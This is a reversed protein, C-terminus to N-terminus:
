FRPLPAGPLRQRFFRFWCGLLVGSYVVLMAIGFLMARFLPPASEPRTEFVAPYLVAYGLTAGPSLASVWLATEQWDSRAVSLVSAILVPTLWVFLLSMMLKGREFVILTWGFVLLAGGIAIPLGDLGDLRAWVGMGSAQLLKEVGVLLLASVLALGAVFGMCSSEDWHWPVGPLQLNSRRLEGRRLTDWDPVVILMLWASLGGALFVFVLPIATALAEDPVPMRLMARAQESIGTTLMPWLNGFVLLQFVAFAVIAQVKSLPHRGAQVWKRHLMCVFLVMMSGQIILSFITGSLTYHFFPVKRAQLIQMEDMAMGSQAGLLPRIHEALVPRVTLYEFFVFGFHSFQPLLLYLLVVFLQAMRASWRWRETVMGAAMGTFHYLLTASFFVGYVTFLSILSVNGRWVVFCLFPLTVAFMVYERIPLGFLYGVIKHGPSAPAMRQYDLVGALKEDVIGTAVSGTGLLMLILGQIVFLPILALRAAEELSSGARIGGYVTQLVTWATLILTLAIWFGSRKLRLRSRAYRWVIPNRWVQWLPPLKPEMTKM